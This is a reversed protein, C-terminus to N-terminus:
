YLSCLCDDVERLSPTSYNREGVDGYCEFDESLRGDLYQDGCSPPCLSLFISILHSHNYLNSLNSHSFHSSHPSFPFSSFQFSFSISFLEPFYVPRHTGQHTTETGDRSSKM